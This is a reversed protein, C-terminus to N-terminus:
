ERLKEKNLLIKIRDLDKVSNYFTKPYIKRLSEGNNSGGHYVNFGIGRQLFISFGVPNHAEVFNKYFEQYVKLAVDELNDYLYMYSSNVAKERGKRALLYM